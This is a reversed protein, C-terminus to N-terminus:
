RIPFITAVGRRNRFAGVNISKGDLNVNGNFRGRSDWGTNSRRAQDAMDAIENASINPDFITKPRSWKGTGQTFRFQFKQGNKMMNKFVDPDTIIGQPKGNVIRTTVEIDGDKFLKAMVGYNHGGAPKGSGNESPIMAHLTAEMVEPYNQRVQTNIYNSIRSCSSNGPNIGGGNLAVFQSSTTHSVQLTSVQVSSSYESPMAGDFYTPNITATQTHVPVTTTVAAALFLASAGTAAQRGFAGNFCSQFCKRNKCVYNGFDETASRFRRL